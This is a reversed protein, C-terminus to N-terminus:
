RLACFNVDVAVVFRIRLKAVFVHAGALQQVADDGVYLDYQLAQEFVRSATLRAVLIRSRIQHHESTNCTVISHSFGASVAGFYEGASSEHNFQAM